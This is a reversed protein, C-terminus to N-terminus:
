SCFHRNDHKEPCRNDWQWRGCISHRDKTFLGKNVCETITDHAGDWTHTAKCEIILHQHHGLCVTCPP